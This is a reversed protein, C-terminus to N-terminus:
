PVPARAFFPTRTYTSSPATFRFVMPPQIHSNQFIFKNRKYQILVAPQRFHFVPFAPPAQHIRVRKQTQNNAIGTTQFQFRNRRSFRIDPRRPRTHFKRIRLDFAFLAAPKRDSDPQGNFKRSILDAPSNREVVPTRSLLDPFHMIRHERDPVGFRRHRRDCRLEDAFPYLIKRFPDTGTKGIIHRRILFIDAISRCNIRPAGTGHVTKRQVPPFVTKIEAAM